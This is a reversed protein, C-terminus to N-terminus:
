SKAFRLFLLEPSAPPLVLAVVESFSPLFNVDGSEYLELGDAVTQVTGRRVRDSRRNVINRGGIIPANPTTERTFSFVVPCSKAIFCTPEDNM